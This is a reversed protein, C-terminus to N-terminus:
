PTLKEASLAWLPDDLDVTQVDGAKRLVNGGYGDGHNGVKDAGIPDGTRGHNVNSTPGRYDTEGLDRPQALVHCFYIEKLDAELLPPQMKQFKLWLEEGTELPWQGKHGSAYITGMSYLQKLNNACAATHAMRIAHGIAPLLLSALIGIIVIVVLLEVLTFGATARRRHSLAVMDEEKRM